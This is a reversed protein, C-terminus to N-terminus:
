AGGAMERRRATLRDVLGQLEAVDFPKRLAGAACLRAAVEAVDPRGSVLAVPVAAWRPERRIAALVDEGALGPLGLDLLVADPPERRLAALAEVGDAAVAVAHGAGELLQATLGLVVPNDDVLLLRAMPGEGRRSRLVRTARAPAARRRRPRAPATVNAPRASSRSSDARRWWSCRPSRRGPKRSACPFTRRTAVEHGDRTARGPAAGRIM